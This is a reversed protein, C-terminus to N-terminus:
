KSSRRCQSTAGDACMELLAELSMDTKNEYYELHHDEKSFHYKEWHSFDRTNLAKLLIGEGITEFKTHDHHTARSRLNEVSKRMLDAVDCWHQRNETQLEKLDM